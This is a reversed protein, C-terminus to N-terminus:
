VSIWSSLLMYIALAYLVVAFIKKLKDAPLRHALRAGLPASLISAGAISLLAPLYVYGISMSPLAPNGWGAVIFGITGAVAIPMGCAASTAVAERMAVNCWVLFPVTMTGGGIGVIASVSGIASGVGLMGGSGPLNRQPKPKINLSLQIAVYLEFLGFLIRLTATPLMDAIAAGIWAGLVIGPTLRGVTRWQVAGKRHHAWVSSLSTFMITALSTGVALHMLLEGNVATAVFLTALVPVIVLGGGVGLLGALFGACTGLAIYSLYEM